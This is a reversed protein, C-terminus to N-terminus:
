PECKYLRLTCEGRRRDEPRAAAIRRFGGIGRRGRRRGVGLFDVGARRGRDFALNHQFARRGGVRNDLHGGIRRAARGVAGLDVRLGVHGVVARQLVHEDVDLVAQAVFVEKIRGGLGHLEILLSGSRAGRRRGATVCGSSTLLLSAVSWLTCPMGSVFRSNLAPWGTGPMFFATGKCRRFHHHRELAVDMAPHARVDADDAVGVEGDGAPGPLELESM